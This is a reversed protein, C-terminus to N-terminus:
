TEHNREMGAGSKEMTSPKLGGGLDAWSNDLLLMATPATAINATKNTRKNDEKRVGWVYLNDWYFM